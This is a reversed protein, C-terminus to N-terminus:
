AFDLATDVIEKQEALHVSQIGTATAATSRRGIYNVPKKNELVKRIKPEMFDWSGMNQPEEQVWYIDARDYKELMEGVEDWPLPYHEEIRVLAVGKEEREDRRAKLDFFVKGRCFHLRKVGKPDPQAPDDLVPYFSGQSLDDPSSASEKHRLLSKPMMLVLPKRFKRLMQRRLLHFYQAPMTPCGVQMNDEACLAQFRELRASSHEPGQGEFGHPLLMVLGSM